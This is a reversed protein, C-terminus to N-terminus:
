EKTEGERPVLATQDNATMVGVKRRDSIPRYLDVASALAVVALHWHAQFCKVIPQDLETGTGIRAILLLPHTPRMVKEPYIFRGLEEFGLHPEQHPPHTIRVRLLPGADHQRGIRRQRSLSLPKELHKARPHVFAVRTARFVALKKPVGHVLM